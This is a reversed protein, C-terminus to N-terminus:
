NNHNYYDSVWTTIAAAKQFSRPRNTLIADLSSQSKASKFCGKECSVANLAITFFDKFRVFVMASNSDYFFVNQWIGQTKALRWSRLFIYILYNPREICVFCCPKSTDYAM